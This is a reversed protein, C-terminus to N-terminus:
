SRLRRARNERPDKGQRSSGLAGHHARVSGDGERRREPMGAVSDKLLAGKWFGFTCHAKFGAMACFIGKYDSFAPFEM